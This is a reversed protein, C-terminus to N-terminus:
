RSRVVKRELRRQTLSLPLVVIIFGVAVWIMADFAPYGRENLTAGIAGAEMVGFGSAITTNKALAIIVSMLPPVANRLAQPLVVERLTQGFTMGIARAAEAQGLPVTNIGSRVAECVFASTYSSLAIVAFAFYSFRIDLRPFGFAVFFFVFTLPTNRLLTVYVTGAARLAPVPSVRMAGLLTGAVLAIAGSIILLVVTTRFAEIFLDWNDTLTEM